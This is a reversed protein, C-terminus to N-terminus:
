TPQSPLSATSASWRSDAGDLAKAQLATPEAASLSAPRGPHCPPRSQGPSHPVLRATPQAPTPLSPAAVTAVPDSITTRNLKNSAMAPGLDQRGHSGDKGIASPYFDSPPSWRYGVNMKLLNLHVDKDPMGVMWRLPYDAYFCTWINDQRRWFSLAPNSELSVLLSRYKIPSRHIKSSHRPLNDLRRRDARAAQYRRRLKARSIM